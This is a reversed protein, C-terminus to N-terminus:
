FKWVGNIKKMIFKVKDQKQKGDSTQVTRVAYVVATDGNIEEKVVTISGKEMPPLSTYQRVSYKNVTQVDGNQFGQVMKQLAQSPSEGCGTLVFLTGAAAVAAMMLKAFKM